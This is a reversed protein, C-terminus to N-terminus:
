EPPALFLAPRDALAQLYDPMPEGAKLRDFVARDFCFRAV